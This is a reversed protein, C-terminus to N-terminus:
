CYIEKSPNNELLFNNYNKLVGSKDRDGIKRNGLYIGWPALDKTVVSGAGITAGEGVNVGPLIVSNAGIICFKGIHVPKRKTNRYKERITSNGFGWEKFDDTGTLIRSGSSLATFDEMVLREGGTISAFSAIHVYNGIKIPKKAYIFVFDDIIINNGFEINELGLIKTYEFTTVGSIGYKDDNGM